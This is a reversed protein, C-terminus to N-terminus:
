EPLVKILPSKTTSQNIQSGSASVSNADMDEAVVDLQPNLGLAVYSTQNITNLLSVEATLTETSGSPVVFDVNDFEAKYYDIGSDYGAGGGLNVLQVSEIGLVQNGDYLTVYAILTNAALNGKSDVWDNGADNGYLRLNLDNLQVDGGLAELDIALSDVDDGVLATSSAVQNSLSVIFETDQNDETLVKILPSKTTSQNIQSGSASVSNADMDEAVVDLQPNLGLAVYSTQNITNLLSVEATLTETSGSPVVFDVNDFEAKYYDIGSDYGAGGGLNVLQVSEIGLVQNGDYLTVYAILTNAALNGKSDVWDNGADNGYLRLNLDNLQVDGGLAELDIALSDVDDGVLATSSAVQNSLSVIFETDQNDNPEDGETSIKIMSTKLTGGNMQPGDVEIVDAQMNEAEVDVSPMLGLAVYSTQSVANLVNVRATLKKTTGEPIIVDLDDFAAKYYDTEPTYTGDLEKDFLDLGEAGGVMQDGDYLTVYTLLDKAAVNGESDAWPNDADNAFLSYDVSTLHVDGGVAQFDLTLADVNTAGELVTKTDVLDPLSVLLKTEQNNNPQSTIPLNPDIIIEVDDDEQNDQLADIKESLEEKIKVRSLSIIKAAEGRTLVGGPEFINPTKGDVFGTDYAWMVAPYYWIDEYVDTFPNPSVPQYENIDGEYLLRALVTVAAARSIYAEPRFERTYVTDGNADEYSSGTMLGLREMLLAYKAFWQSDVDKFFGEEVVIEFDGGWTAVIVKAFEARNIPDDPFYFDKDKDIINEDALDQVYQLSWHDQIDAYYPADGRAQPLSPSITMLLAIALMFSTLGRLKEIFRNMIM